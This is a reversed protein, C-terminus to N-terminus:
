ARREVVPPCRAVRGAGIGRTRGNWARRLRWAARWLVVTRAAHELAPLPELVSSADAGRHWRLADREVCARATLQGGLLPELAPAHAAGFKRTHVFAGTGIAPHDLRRWRALEPARRRVAPAMM